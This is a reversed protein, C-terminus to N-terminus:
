VHRKRDAGSFNAATVVVADPGTAGFYIAQDDKGLNIGAVGAAGRGQPRVADAKFRLLQAQATVFIFEDSDTATCAGVLEDGPKLGLSLLANALRGTESLLEVYSAGGVIWVRDPDAAMEKLKVIVDTSM